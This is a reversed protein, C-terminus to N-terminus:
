EMDRLTVTQGKLELALIPDPTSFYCGHDLLIEAGNLTVRDTRYPYEVYAYAKGDDTQGMQYVIGYTWVFYYNTEGGPYCTLIGIEMGDPLVMEQETGEVRKYLLGYKKVVRASTPVTADNLYFDYDATRICPWDSCTEGAASLSTFCYGCWLVAAVACMALVVTIWVAALIASLRSITRNKEVIVADPEETFFSSPAVGFYQGLADLSDQSPLGLGNEWKAVASRSVFIADALAQQSINREQRLTKLKDKFEM